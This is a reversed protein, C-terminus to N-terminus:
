GSLLDGQPEANGIGQVQWHLVSELDPYAVNIYVIFEVYKTTIDQIYCELEDKIHIIKQYPHQTTINYEVKYKKIPTIFFTVHPITKYARKFEVKVIRKFVYKKFTGSYKENDSLTPVSEIEWVKEDLLKKLKTSHNSGQGQRNMGNYGHEEVDKPPYHSFISGFSVYSLHQPSQESEYDKLDQCPNTLIYQNEGVGNNKYMPNVVHLFRYTDLDDLPITGSETTSSVFHEQQSITEKGQICELTKELEKVREDLTKVLKKFGDM